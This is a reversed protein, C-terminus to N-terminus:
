ETLIRYAEKYKEVRDLDKQTVESLRSIDMNHRLDALKVARAIENNKVINIYDMYPVSKDHNLLSLADGVEKGFEDTLTEITIDTDEAVDHLLAAIVINEDDNGDEVAFQAVSLPHYIYPKGAKDVQGEHASTAMTVAKLLNKSIKM